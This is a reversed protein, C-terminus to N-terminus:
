DSGSGPLWRVLALMLDSCQHHCLAFRDQNSGTKMDLGSMAHVGLTVTELMYQVTASNPSLRIAASNLDFAICTMGQARALAGICRVHDCTIGKAQELAEIAINAGSDHRCSLYTFLAYSTSTIDNSRKLKACAGLAKCTIKKCDARSLKDDTAAWFLLCQNALAICNPKQKPPCGTGSIQDASELIRAARSWLHAERLLIGHETMVSQMSKTHIDDQEGQCHCVTNNLIWMEALEAADSMPPIGGLLEKILEAHLKAPVPKGLCSTLNSLHIELIKAQDKHQMCDRICLGLVDAWLKSCAKRAIAATVWDWHVQKLALMCQVTSRVHFDTLAIASSMSQADCHLRELAVNYSGCDILARIVCQKLTRRASQLAEKSGSTRCRENLHTLWTELRDTFKSPMGHPLSGSIASAWGSLLGCVEAEATPLSANVLVALRKLHGCLVVDSAPLFQVGDRVIDMVLRLIQAYCAHGKWHEPCLPVLYDWVITASSEWQDITLTASDLDRLQSGAMVALDPIVADDSQHMDASREVLRNICDVVFYRSVECLQQARSDCKEEPPGGPDRQVVSAATMLLSDILHPDWHSASISDLATLIRSTYARFKVHESYIVGHKAGDAFEQLLLTLQAIHDDMLETSGCRRHLRTQDCTELSSPTCSLQKTLGCVSVHWVYVSMCHRAYTTCRKTHGTIFLTLVSTSRNLWM